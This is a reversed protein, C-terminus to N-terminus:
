PITFSSPFATQAERLSGASGAARLDDPVAEQSRSREIAEASEVGSTEVSAFVLSDVRSNDNLDVAFKVVDEATILPSKEIEEFNTTASSVTIEQATQVPAAMVEEPPLGRLRRELNARAAYSDLQLARKTKKFQRQEAVRDLQDALSPKESLLHDLGNPDSKTKRVAGRFSVATKQQPSREEIQLAETLENRPRETVELGNEYDIKQGGIEIIGDLLGDAFEGSGLDGTDPNYIVFPGDPARKENLGFILVADPSLSAAQELIRPGRVNKLPTTVLESAGHFENLYDVVASPSVEARLSTSGLSLLGIFM